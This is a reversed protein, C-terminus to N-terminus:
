PLAGALAELNKRMRKLYWDGKEEAVKKADGTELPDVEVLTLEKHKGLEDKVTKATGTAFQPEVTIARIGEKRCKEVIKAVKGPTSSDAALQMADAQELGFSRAFYRFSDHFAIFKRSKKKAVLAKGEKELAKLKGVCDEANKKFDAAHDPDLRALEDRIAEVLLVAEPVGLWVHPDHKGHDHHPEGGAEDHHHAEADLLVPVKKDKDHFAPLSLGLKVPDAQKRRYQGVLRRTINDDLGLGISLFLDNSKFAALERPDAQYGHPGTKDCLMRVAVQDGGVEHVWAALPPITVVVRKKETGEWPDGSTGCGVVCALALALLRKM